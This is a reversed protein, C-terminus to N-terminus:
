RCLQLCFSHFTSISLKKAVEKPRVSGIRDAAAITFNLALINPLSSVRILLILTQVNGIFDKRSGTGAMIMLLVSIDACAAEERPEDNLKQLCEHYKDVAFGGLKEAGKGESRIEALMYCRNWSFSDDFSWMAPLDGLKARSM